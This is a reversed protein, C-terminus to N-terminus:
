LGGGKMKALIRERKQSVTERKEREGGRSAAAVLALDNDSGSDSDSDYYARVHACRRAVARLSEGKWGFDPDDFRRDTPLPYKPASRPKVGLKMLWLFPKGKSEYLALLGAKQCAAMWRSCDAERVEALKLPFLKARLVSPRGDFLGYDDVASMLRRYFVEEPCDLLNVAESTLIAERLNRNPM